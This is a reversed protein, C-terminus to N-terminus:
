EIPMPPVAPLAMPDVVPVEAGSGEAPPVVSSGPAAPAPTESLPEVPVVIVPLSAEHPMVEVPVLDSSPVVTSPTLPVMEVAPTGSTTSMEPNVPLHDTTAGPMPIDVPVMEPVVAPVPEPVVEPLGGPMPVEAPVGEPMVVPVPEAPVSEPVVVPTAEPVGGPMPVEAPVGEPMVVPVPESPVSEPVVAPTAELVGGPMPVEAPVGEPMVVPAPEAPVSEPVVGPTAELVGGPMPVEAPVGEPMVVPAPEAPVSEPVVPIPMDPVGGPMPVEVPVVEPLVAPILETTPQPDVAGPMEAAHREDRQSDAPVVGPLAESVPLVAPLSSPIAGSGVMPESPAAKAPAIPHPVPVPDASVATALPTAAPVVAAPDVLALSQEMGGLEARLADLRRQEAVALGALSEMMAIRERLAQIRAPAEPVAKGVALAGRVQGLFGRVEADLSMLAQAREPGRHLRLDQVLRQFDTPEAATLAVALLLLSPVCAHRSRSM